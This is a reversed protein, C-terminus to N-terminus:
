REVAREMAGLAALSSGSIGRAKSLAVFDSRGPPGGQYVRFGNATMVLDGKRLTPDKLAEAEWDAHRHCTCTADVTTRYRGAVPLATYRAGNLSYASDITDAGAPITYRASPADPCEAACASDNDASSASPFFSGDCLRVCVATGGGSKHAPAAARRPRPAEDQYRPGDDGYYPEPYAWPPPGYGRSQYPSSTFPSESYGFFGGGGQARAAVAWGGAACAIVGIATAGM